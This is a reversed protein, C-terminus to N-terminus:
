VHRRMQGWSGTRPNERNGQQNETPGRRRDDPIKVVVNRHGIAHGDNFGLLAHVAVTQIADFVLEITEEILHRAVLWLSSISPVVSGYRVSLSRLGIARYHVNAFSKLSRAGRFGKQSVAEETLPVM